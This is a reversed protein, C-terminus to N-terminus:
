RKVAKEQAMKERAVKEWHRENYERVKDKNAQQWKRHYERRLQKAEDTM